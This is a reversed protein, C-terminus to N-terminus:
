GRGRVTESRSEAGGGSDAERGGEGHPGCALSRRRGKYDV